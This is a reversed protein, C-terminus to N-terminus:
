VEGAPDDDTREEFGCGEVVGVGGVVSFTKGGDLVDDTGMAEVWAIVGKEVDGLHMGVLSGWVDGLDEVDDVVSTGRSGQLGSRKEDAAQVARREHASPQHKGGLHAVLDKGNERRLGGGVSTIGRHIAVGEKGSGSGSGNEDGDRERRGGLGDRRSANSREGDM